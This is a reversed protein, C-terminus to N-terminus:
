ADRFRGAQGPRSAWYPLNALRGYAPDGQPYGFARHDVTAHHHHVIGTADAPASAAADARRGAEWGAVGIATAGAAYLFMRRNLEPKGSTNTM